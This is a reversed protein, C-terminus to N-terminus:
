LKVDAFKYVFKHAEQFHPSFSLRVDEMWKVVRPFQQENITFLKMGVVQELLCVAMLDAFTVESGAVFRNDCLWINELDSLSKILIREQTKIEKEDAKLLWKLRFYMGAAYNINNHNWQLYEDIRTRAKLEKPYWQEPIIGSRGLYHFIAVSESLKFGNDNIAPVKLFRNVDKGFSETLHEGLILM